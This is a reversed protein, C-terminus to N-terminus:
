KNLQKMLFQVVAQGSQITVLLPFALPVSAFVVTYSSYFLIFGFLVGCVVACGGCRM